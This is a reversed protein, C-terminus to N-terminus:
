AALPPGREAYGRALARTRPLVVVAPGRPTAGREAPARWSRAFARFLARTARLLLWACAYALLAFPVQLAVGLLFTSELLLDGTLSGHHLFRELHEQVAFVAIPVLAFPAARLRLGLRGNRLARYQLALAALCAAAAILATPRTLEALYGHGTGQLLRSRAEDDPV